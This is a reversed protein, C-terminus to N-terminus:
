RGIISSIRSVRGDQSRTVSPAESLLSIATSARSRERRRPPSRSRRRPPTRIPSRPSRQPFRRRRVPTADRFSDMSRSTRQRRRRPEIMYGEVTLGSIRIQLFSQSHVDWEIFCSVQNSPNLSSPHPAHFLLWLYQSESDIFAVKTEKEELDTRRKDFRVTAKLDYGAKRATLYTPEEDEERKRGV